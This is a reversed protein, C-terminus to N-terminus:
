SGTLKARFRMPQRPLVGATIHTSGQQDRRRLRIVPLTQLEGERWGHHLPGTEASHPRRSVVRRIPSSAGFSVKSARDLFPATPSPNRIGAPRSRDLRVSPRRGFAEWSLVRPADPPRNGDIPIQRSPLKPLPHAPRRPPRRVSSRSLSNTAAAATSPPTKAHDVTYCTGESVATRYRFRPEAAAPLHLSATVPTM